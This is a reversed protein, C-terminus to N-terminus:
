SPSGILRTSCDGHLRTAQSLAHIPSILGEAYTELPVLDRLLDAYTACDVGAEELAQRTESRLRRVLGRDVPIEPAKESCCETPRPDPQTRRFHRAQGQMEVIAQTKLGGRRDEILLDIQIGSVETNSTVNFGLLRYLAAVEEEFGKGKRIPM